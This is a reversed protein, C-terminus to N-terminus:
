MGAFLDYSRQLGGPGFGTRGPRRRTSGPYYSPVGTEIGYVDRAPAPSAGPIVNGAIRSAQELYGLGKEFPSPEYRYSPQYFTPEYEQMLRMAWQLPMEEFERGAAAKRGPLEAEYRGFEGALPIAQLQRGREEGYLSGLYGMLRDLTQEELEAEGTIERSSALGHGGLQARRRLREKAEGLEGMALRRYPEYRKGIYPEYFEGGITRELETAATGWLAPMGQETLYQEMLSAPMGGMEGRGGLYDLIKQRGTQYWEPYDLKLERPEPMEEKKGEFIDGIFDFLAM